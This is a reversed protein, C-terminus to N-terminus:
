ANSKKASNLEYLLARLSDKSMGALYRTFEDLDVYLGGETQKFFVTPLQYESQIIPATQLSSIIAILKNKDEVTLGEIVRQIYVKGNLIHDLEHQMVRADSGTLEKSHYQGAKDYYGITINQPRLVEARCNGAYSLCGEAFRNQTSSINLIEPNFYIKMQPFLTNPYRFLARSLHDPNHYDVGAIIISLPKDLTQLQNAAIGVGGSFSLYHAMLAIQEDIQNLPTKAFDIRQASQHLVRDGLQRIGPMSAPNFGQIHQTLQSVDFKHTFRLTGTIKEFFSIEHLTKPVGNCQVNIKYLVAHVDDSRWDIIEPDCWNSLQRISATKEAFHYEEENQTMTQLLFEKALRQEQENGALMKFACVRSLFLSKVDASVYRNAQISEWAADLLPTTMMQEQSNLLM